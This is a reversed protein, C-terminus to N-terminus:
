HPVSPVHATSVSPVSAQHLNTKVGSRGNAGRGITVAQGAVKAKGRTSANGGKGVGVGARATNTDARVVTGLHNNLNTGGLNGSQALNPANTPNALVPNSSTVRASPAALSQGATLLLAAGAILLTSRMTKEENAAWGVWAAGRM